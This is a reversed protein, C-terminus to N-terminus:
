AVLCLGATRVCEGHLTLGLNEQCSPRWSAGLPPPWASFPFALLVESISLSPLTLAGHLSPRRETGAESGESLEQAHQRSGLFVSRKLFKISQINVVHM